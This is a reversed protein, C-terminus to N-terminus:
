ARKKFSIKGLLYLVYKFVDFYLMVMLSISMMWIVSLNFWFTSYLHGMFKKTPALFHARGINSDTPDLYIPDIRQILKGDKELCREGLDNSNLMTQELIDNTYDDELAMYKAKSVSDKTMSQVLQDREIRYKNERNIYHENIKALFDKLSKSVEPTFDKVNLKDINEFKYKDHM